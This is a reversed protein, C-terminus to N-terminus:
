QAGKPSLETPLEDFDVLDKLDVKKAGDPAKFAFDDAAVDAGAKWDSIQVSYQPGQDMDKSTIVYRCPYPHEGQAIWIQWDVDKNRFALHDCESGGIVGSGLDKVDVVDEMLAEYVNSLLLDAGPVPRGYEYRLEDVLNDLSGPIDVQTYLNADKGLLSLTKGDFVMEVNAFGGHRTGRFKDPRTLDMTGSSALLFKQHDDTVIELNTDYNFSLTTQAALYDSMAKLMAKAETDNARAPAALGIALTLAAASTVFGGALVRGIFSRRDTKM